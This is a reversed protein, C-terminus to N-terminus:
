DDRFAGAGGERRLKLAGLSPVFFYEGATVTVVEHMVAFPHIGSPQHTSLRM